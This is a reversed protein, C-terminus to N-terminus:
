FVIEWCLTHAQNTTLMVQRQSALLQQRRLAPQERECSSTAASLGSQCHLERPQECILESVTHPEDFESRDGIWSQKGLGNNGRQVKVFAGALLKQVGEGAANVSPM